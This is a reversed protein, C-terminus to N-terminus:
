LVRLDAIDIGIDKWRKVNRLINTAIQQRIHDVVQEKIFRHNENPELKISTFYDEFSYFGKGNIEIHSGRELKVHYVQTNARKLVKETMTLWQQTGKLSLWKTHERKSKFPLTKELQNFLNEDTMESILYNSLTQRITM